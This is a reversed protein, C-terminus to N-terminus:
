VTGHPKCSNKAVWGFCPNVCLTPHTLCCRTGDRLNSRGLSESPGRRCSKKARPLKRVQDEMRRRDPQRRAQQRGRHATHGPQLTRSGSPATGPLLLSPWGPPNVLESAGKEAMANAVMLRLALRLRFMLVLMRMLRFWRVMSLSNGRVDTSGGISPVVEVSRPVMWARHETDM